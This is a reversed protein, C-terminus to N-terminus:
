PDLAELALADPDFEDFIGELCADNFFDQNDHSLGSPDSAALWQGPMENGMALARDFDPVSTEAFSISRPALEGIHGQRRGEPATIPADEGERSDKISPSSSDSQNQKARLLDDNPVITVEDGLPVIDSDAGSSRSPSDLSPTEQASSSDPLTPVQHQRKGSLNAKALGAKRKRASEPKLVPAQPHALAPHAMYQAPVAGPALCVPQMPMRTMSQWWPESSSSADDKKTSELCKKFEEDLKSLRKRVLQIRELPQERKSYMMKGISTGGVGVFGRAVICM